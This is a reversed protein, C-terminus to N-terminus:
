QDHVSIAQTSIPLKPSPSSPPLCASYPFHSCCSTPSYYLVALIFQAASLFFHRVALSYLGALASPPPLYLEVKASQPSAHHSHGGITQYATSIGMDHGLSINYLIPMICATIAHPSLYLLLVFPESISLKPSSYSRM